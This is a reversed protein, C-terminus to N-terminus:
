SMECCDWIRFFCLLKDLEEQNKIASALNYKNRARGWNINRQEYGSSSTTIETVFEPGSVAGYSIDAPFQIEYFSTKTM